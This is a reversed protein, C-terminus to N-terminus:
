IVIKACLEDFNAYRDSETQQLGQMVAVANLMQEQTVVARRLYRRITEEYGKVYFCKEWHFWSPSSMIIRFISGSLSTLDEFPLGRAAWSCVLTIPHQQGLVQAAYECFLWPIRCQDFPLGELWDLWDLCRYESIHRITELLSWLHRSQILTRAAEYFYQGTRIKDGSIRHSHLFCTDILQIGGSSYEWSRAGESCWWYSLGNLIEHIKPDLSLLAAIPSGPASNSLMMHPHLSEHEDQSNIPEEIM